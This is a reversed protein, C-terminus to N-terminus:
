NAHGNRLLSTSQPSVPVLACQLVWEVAERLDKATYDPSLGHVTMHAAEEEPRYGSLVFVGIAGINRALAIDIARDGIVFSRDAALGLDRRAQAVLGSAPKRCDCGEEPRHLCAYIGDLWAGSEALMERLRQHIAGLAEVTIIGRGVGSQNTVLVAKLGARNLRAVAPGVGPLLRMAAPDNLYGPDWNLTGDRDLFVVPASGRGEGTKLSSARSKAEAVASQNRRTPVSSTGVSIGASGLQRVAAAYVQDSQVGRMCRHDIPCERLLCPSCEVSQRVLEHGSGFPATTQPDTPGFVAVVPVGLANAIHMPGADNTLFLRCRKVLAMLERVTTRGSLLTHPATLMAAISRGLMEEGHGGFILIHAGYEAALREVVEAYREPLWRKATGYTSGPNLGIITQGSIIGFSELRAAADRDEESSTYLVPPQPTVPFGMPRLLELYYEVQHRQRLGPIQAVRHTLLFWRGDTPYGYRHPIGSLATLFAAEFANQFLVALDFQGSRLSRALRWKGGLGAHRGPHRYLIIEDVVPHGQFLEAVPPKALLAIHAHPFGHRLAVLAPAMLVGDGLWNTGRVLLRKVAGPRTLETFRSRGM